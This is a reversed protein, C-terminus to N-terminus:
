HNGVNHWGTNSKLKAQEVQAALRPQVELCEVLAMIALSLVKSPLQVQQSTQDVMEVLQLHQVLLHPLAVQEVQQVALCVQQVQQVSQM